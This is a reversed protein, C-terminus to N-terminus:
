ARNQPNITELGNDNATSILESDACVFVPDQDDSDLSLAAALQLSDLTRLDADVILDFSFQLLSEEMPLIVFNDLAEDFFESLLSNMAEETIEDRNYKRRFASVTEIISLSSIVVSADSEILEDVIATGPEDYYRKVLASTDFFHLTM